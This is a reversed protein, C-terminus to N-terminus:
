KKRSPVEQSPFQTFTIEGMVAQGKIVEVQYTAGVTKIGAGLDADASAGIQVVGIPGVSKLNAILPNGTAVTVTVISPDSSEWITPGDVPVPNGGTDKWEVSVTAYTGSQMTSSMNEGNFVVTDQQVTLIARYPQESPAVMELRLPTDFSIQLEV